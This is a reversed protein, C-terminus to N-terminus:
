VGDSYVEIREQQASPPTPPRPDMDYVRSTADILDKESGFPFTSFEKIFHLTVDYRGGSDRPGPLSPDRVVLARALLDESGGAVAEMQAKSLGMPRGAEGYNYVVEGFDRADGDTVVSWRAPRSDHLVPLPLFFRSNRFDPELREVREQKSNGGERPWALEHIPFHAEHRQSAPLRKSELLMQEAFYEDDSQAGYREYGVSVHQIGKMASWRRYFARLMMWRQSLTMRHCAGDLFFKAGGSSIGVVAIATNDSTASRGRSPDCMIYVNLTRPRVEYSRLWQTRFTADEDAMPNQLQQSAIIQRSSNRLKEAWAAESHFVPRGDMKGNHTAPHIRPIAAGRKMIEAYTDSLSYRTGIYRRAGGVAGLNQSLDWADTTKAVMDPSMVSAVVDDYVLLSFHKSNHTPVLARGALYVGDETAVQICNVPVSAVAELRRVYRGANRRADLCRNLKRALRFPADSKVGVFSFSYKINHHPDGDHGSHIRGPRMGLSAALYHCQEMLILNCNFFTSQGWGNSHCGGDSDMLGQLLARREPVDAMLYHPPVHKNWLLGMAKLQERLGLLRFMKYEGRDQAVVIEYGAAIFDPMVDYDGTTIIGGDSSGDGLWFGLVYPDIELDNTDGPHLVPSALMRRRKDRTPGVSLPLDATRVIERTTQAWGTDQRNTVPDRPSHVRDVPWLHDAAAIMDTDGFTVALCEKGEMPGTNHVVMVPAGDGGFIYDGVLLAGHTTWTGDALLIPTTVDLATPQGDVLGHAEITAEKPNQGRRVVLGSDESWSPADKGPNDWLIEPYLQQLDLNDEFERKIQRLFGKAIPRTHSFIGVTIEPDKLIDQITLGFTGITSKYGERMWLDLRGDPEAQVERCREFLWDRNIDPRRLLRVLLYFLDARGLQREFSAWAARSQALCQAQMDAYFHWADTRTKPLDGVAPLSV